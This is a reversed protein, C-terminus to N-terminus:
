SSCAIITEIVRKTEGPNAVQICNADTERTPYDNGGPFLADGVYIMQVIPVGLVDRLKRIGYAKDIGPLTVDISTSGGLRVSFDPLSRDLIGKIRKRKTFDPDWKKKEELPAQQGLASYTIQSERDEILEGWIKKEQLGTARVADNLAGVIKRVQAETLDESYLKYWGGDRYQFFRTGCTPLLSLNGLPAGPPLHALVQKQFQPLDGGSIIAMKVVALLGALLTAMEKDIASKSEALTGDLDFVILTKM